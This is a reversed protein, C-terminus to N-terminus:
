RDDGDGFYILDQGPRWRGWVFLSLSKYEMTENKIEIIIPVTVTETGNSRHSSTMRVQQESRLVREHRNCGHMGEAVNKVVEEKAQTADRERAEDQTHLNETRKTREEQDVQEEARRETM